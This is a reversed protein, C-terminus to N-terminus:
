EGAYELEKEATKASRQRLDACADEIVSAPISELMRIFDARGIGVPVVLNIRRGRHLYIDRLASHLLDPRCTAEDFVPLGSAELLALIRDSDRESMLGLRVAIRTSLAMDIAVAEGHHIAHESEIEIMPSFSHGFDVLRELDKEHLNPRLEDMMLQIAMVLVKLDRERGAPDDTAFRRKLIVQVHSELLEFLEDSLIIAMKIIEALGCSIQRLPLTRLFHPDNISAHAPYYTGLMNKSSLFNVGTKIGVGVDIQGVLTTNVKIYRIGRKYISAAFGVMDCVIGGGVAILVGNRDICRAKAKECIREVSRLNKNHEGSDLVVYDWSGAPLRAAFYRRLAEGYLRDVVRTSFVLVQRGECYSALLPNDENFVGATMDVSYRLEGPARSHFASGTHEVGTIM